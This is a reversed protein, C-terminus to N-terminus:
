DCAIGDGDRDLDYVDPGIVRLPGQVYAPGNGSGGACDVDSAIPVCAGTYSPHCSSAVKTGVLIVETVPQKTIEERILKKATQVGDTLTVEYTLKKSGNVGATKVRTKGKALTPDNVRKTAHPISKTETVTRKEVVPGSVPAASPEPQTEASPTPSPLPQASATASPEGSETSPSAAASGSPLAVQAAAQAASSPRPQRPSDTLAGIAALGGCCLMVTAVLGGSILVAAKQGPRLGGLFGTKPVPVAQTQHPGQPHANTM